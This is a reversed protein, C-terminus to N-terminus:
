VLAQIKEWLLNPDFPKSVYDNMGLALCQEREGQLAHATLAIIPTKNAPAPLEQRIQKTAEYGDMEPMQLDMLIIDYEHKALHELASLGDSAVDVQYGFGELVKEALLQNLPVDEALLIRLRRTSKTLPPQQDRDEGVTPQYESIGFIATFVFTAGSGPESELRVTGQMLAVLKSVIALGLGTGGYQMHIQDHAQAFSEFIRQQEQPAIGIGTDSVAFELTIRQNEQQLIHAALKIHGSQTFKFANEILNTFIQNLRIPDGMLIEPIEPDIDLILQLGKQRIKIIYNNQLSSILNKLEFPVQSISLKGAAVKSFDLIDNIIVLLNEGSMNIADLFRMQDANVPSKLLLHVFGLIANLPTRIEHSMNALFQDKFGQQRKLEENKLDLIEKELKMSKNQVALLEQHMISENREQLLAQSYQYHETFDFITFVFNSGSRTVVLDYIGEIAGINLQLCPLSFTEKEALGTIATISSEFFPHLQYIIDSPLEEKPFLSYDSERIVGQDDTIFFQVKTQLYRHKIEELNM